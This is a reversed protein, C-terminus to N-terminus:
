SEASTFRARRWVGRGVPLLMLSLGGYIALPLPVATVSAPAGSGGGSAGGLEVIGGIFDSPNVPAPAGILEPPASPPSVIEGVDAVSVGGGLVANGVAEDVDTGFGLEVGGTGASLGSLGPAGGSEDATRASLVPGAFALSASAAMLLASCIFTRM